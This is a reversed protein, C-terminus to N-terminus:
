HLARHAPGRLAHGAPGRRRPHGARDALVSGERAACVSLWPLAPGLPAAPLPPPRSLLPLPPPPLPLPPPPLFPPLSVPLTDPHSRSPTLPSSCPSCPLVLPLRPTHHTRSQTRIRIHTLAQTGTHICAHRVTTNCVCAHVRACAHAHACACMCVHARVCVRPSLPRFRRERGLLGACLQQDQRLAHLVAGAAGDGGSSERGGGAGGSDSKGHRAYGPTPLYQLDRLPFVFHRM